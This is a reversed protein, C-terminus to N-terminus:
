AKVTDLPRNLNGRRNAVHLLVVGFVLGVIMVVISAEPGFGGGTLLESGKTSGEIFGGGPQVGSVTQGFVGGLMFNWMLHVGIVFWLRRTVFYAASLFVGAGIVIGLVGQWSLDGSSLTNVIHVCGFLVSVVFTALKWGWRTDLTRLVFGRFVAEELFAGGIGLGLAVAIGHHLGFGQPHYAGLVWLLGMVVSIFLVGVGSGALFEQTAGPGQLEIPERNEKRRVLWKYGFYGVLAQGLMGVALGPWPHEILYKQADGVIHQGSAQAVLLALNLMVLSGAAMLFVAYVLLPLKKLRDKM